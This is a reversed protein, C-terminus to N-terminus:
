EVYFFFPFPFIISIQGQVTVTLGFKLLCFVLFILWFLALVKFLRALHMLLSIFYSNQLCLLAKHSFLYLYNLSIKHILEARHHIYM